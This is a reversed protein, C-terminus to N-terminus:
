PTWHPRVRLELQAPDVVDGQDALVHRAGDVEVRVHESHRQDLRDVERHPHSLVEEEVGAVAVADREEPERARGLGM